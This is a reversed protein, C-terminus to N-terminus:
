KRKVWSGPGDNEYGMKKFTKCMETMLALSPNTRWLIKMYLWDWIRRM